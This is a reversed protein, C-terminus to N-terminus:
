KGILDLLSVYIGAVMLFCAFVITAYCEMSEPVSIKGNFYILYLVYPIIFQTSTQTLYGVFNLYNCFDPIFYAVGFIVFLTAIRIIVQEIHHIWVRSLDVNLFREM